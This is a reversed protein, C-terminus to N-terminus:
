RPRKENRIRAAVAAEQAVCRAVFFSATLVAFIISFGVNQLEGLM